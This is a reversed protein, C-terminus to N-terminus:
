ANYRLASHFPRPHAENKKAKQKRWKPDMRGRANQDIAVTYLKHCVVRVPTRKEKKEQERTHTHARERM